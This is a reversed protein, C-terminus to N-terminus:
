DLDGWSELFSAKQLRPLELSEGPNELSSLVGKGGSDTGADQVHASEACSFGRSIPTPHFCKCHCEDEVLYEMKQGVWSFPTAPLLSILRWPYLNPSITQTRQLSSSMEKLQALDYCWSWGVQVWPCTRLSTQHLFLLQPPPRLLCLLPMFHFFTM